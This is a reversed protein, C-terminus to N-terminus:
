VERAFNITVGKCAIDFVRVYGYELKPEDCTTIAGFFVLQENKARTRKVLYVMSLARTAGEEMANSWFIEKGDTYDRAERIMRDYILDTTGSTTCTHDSYLGCVIKKADTLSLAKKREGYWVFKRISENLLRDYM